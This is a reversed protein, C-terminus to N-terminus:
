RKTLSQYISPDNKENEDRYMEVWFPTGGPDGHSVYNKQCPTSSTEDIEAQTMLSTPIM